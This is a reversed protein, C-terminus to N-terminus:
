SLKLSLLHGATDGATQFTSVLVVRGDLVAESHWEDIAVFPDVLRHRVTAYV